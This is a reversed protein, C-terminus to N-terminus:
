RGRTNVLIVGTLVILGGILALPSPIENLWVWAIFIALVPSLYLFSAVVSAPIHRLVESWLAYAIVSPFVGLYLIALTADIPATPLELLLGPLFVLLFCTGSWIAYATFRLAGYRQLYPKQFTFYLSACVAAIVVLLAGPDFQLATGEGLVILLVGAFSIAIGLWGWIRLREGLFFTALLATFLPVSSILLSAAGATVSVEGYSIAIHYVTIGIFGLLVLGRLDSASPLGVRHIGPYIAIALSAVLFRLLALSGPTYGQLAARVGSFASAWFMLVIILFLLLRTNTPTNM